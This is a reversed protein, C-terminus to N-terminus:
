KIKYDNFGIYKTIRNLCLVVSYVPSLNFINMFMIIHISSCQVVYYNIGKYVQIRTCCLYSKLSLKTKFILNLRLRNYIQTLLINFM